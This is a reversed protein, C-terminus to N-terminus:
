QTVSPDANGQLIVHRQLQIVRNDQFRCSEKVWKWGKGSLTATNRSMYDWLSKISHYDLWVKTNEISCVNKNKFMKILM